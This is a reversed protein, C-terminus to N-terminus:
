DIPLLLNDLMQQTDWRFTHYMGYKFGQEFRLPDKKWTKMSGNRRIDRAKGNRDLTKITPYDEGQAMARLDDVTCKRLTLMIPQKNRNYGDEVTVTEM